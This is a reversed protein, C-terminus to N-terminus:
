TRGSKAKEQARRGEEWAKQAERLDSDISEKNALYYAIAAYVKELDLNYEGALEEPRVGANYHVAVERVPYRTGALCPRGGYVGPTKTILTGIDVTTAQAM